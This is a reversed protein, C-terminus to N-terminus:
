RSRAHHEPGRRRHHLLREPDPRAHVRAAGGRDGRAGPAPEGERARAHRLARRVAPASLPRGEGDPRRAPLGPARRGRGGPPHARDPEGRAAPPRGRGDGGGPVVQRHRRARHRRHDHPRPHRGRLQKQNVTKPAVKLGRHRWVVDELIRSPSEHRDLAGGIAEITGPAVEHGQRVLDTLERVVTKGMAVDEASGDLTLVNGRLFVECDLHDELTRMIADGPGALETAVENSLEIQQRAVLLHAEGERRRERAQWRCPGEGQADRAVDGQGHGEPSDAGSEAVADGVIAQLEDDSIQEPLYAGILDAEAEEAGALDDRGADRYATASELRRKRERQLM